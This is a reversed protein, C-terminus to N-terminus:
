GNQSAGFGTPIISIWRERWPLGAAGRARRSPDRFRTYVSREQPVYGVVIGLSIADLDTVPRIRDRDEAAASFAIPRTPEAIM